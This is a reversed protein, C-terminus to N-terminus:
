GESELFEDVRGTKYLALPDNAICHLLSFDKKFLADYRNQKLFLARFAFIVCGVLTILFYQRGRETNVECIM